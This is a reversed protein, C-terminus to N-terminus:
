KGTSNHNVEQKLFEDLTPLKEIDPHKTSQKDEVNVRIVGNDNYLFIFGCGECLLPGIYHAVSLNKAEEKLDIDPAIDTGFLDKSCRTCFDAM